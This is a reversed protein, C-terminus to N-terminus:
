LWFADSEHAAQIADKIIKDVRIEQEALDKLTAAMIKAAQEPTETGLIDNAAETVCADALTEGSSLLRQHLIRALYADMTQMALPIWIDLPRNQGPRHGRNEQQLLLRPTLPVTALIIADTDQLDLGTGMTASTATICYGAQGLAGGMYEQVWEDRTVTDVDGTITRLWSEPAMERIRAALLTAHARTATFVLVKGGTRLYELSKRACWGTKLVASMVAMMQYTRGRRTNRTEEEEGNVRMAEHLTASTIRDLEGMPVRVVHRVRPPLSAHSQAETIRDTIGWIPQEDMIGLRERLPRLHSNAFVEIPDQTKGAIMDKPLVIGGYGSPNDIAGLYHKAYAVRGGGGQGTWGRPEILTLLGFTDLADRAIFSGTTLLRRPITESIEQAASARNGKAVRKLKVRPQGDRGLSPKGDRGLIKQSEWSFRDLSKAEHAEDYIVSSIVGRQIMKRLFGFRGTRDVGSKTKSMREGAEGGFADAGYYSTALDEWGVVFVPRAGGAQCDQLYEEPSRWPADLPYPKNQWSKRSALAPDSIWARLSSAAYAQRAWQIRVAALTVVLLGALHTSTPVDLLGWAFSPRTKGSGAPWLMMGGNRLGTFTVGATQYPFFTDIISSRLEVNRLVEMPNDPPSPGPPFETRVHTLRKAWSRLPEPAMETLWYLAHHAMSYLGNFDVWVGPIRLAATVIEPTDRPCAMIFRTGIPWAQM